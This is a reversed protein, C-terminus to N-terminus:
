AGCCRKYKRGSACPCQANRACEPAGNVIPSMRGSLKAAGDALDGPAPVGNNAGAAAGILTPQPRKPMNIGNREIEIGPAQNKAPQTQAPMSNPMQSEFNATNSRQAGIEPVPSRQPNPLRLKSSNTRKSQRGFGADRRITNLTFM